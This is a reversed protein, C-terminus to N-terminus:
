WFKGKKYTNKATGVRQFDLFAAIQQPSSLWILPKNKPLLSLKQILEKRKNNPFNWVEWIYKASLKESCDRAM